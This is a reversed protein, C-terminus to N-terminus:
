GQTREEVERANNIREFEELLFHEKKMERLDMSYLLGIWVGRIRSPEDVSFTLRDGPSVPMDIQEVLVPKRTRITTFNGGKSSQVDVNFGVAKTGTYNGVVLCGKTVMGEATFLYRLLVGDEPPEEVYAFIPIPPMVGIITDHLHMSLRRLVTDISKFKEETTDGKVYSRRTM